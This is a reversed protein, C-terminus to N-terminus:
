FLLSYRRYAEEGRNLKKGIRADSAEWRSRERGRRWWHEQAREV